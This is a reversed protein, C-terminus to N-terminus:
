YCVIIFIHSKFFLKQVPIIATIKEPTKVSVRKLLIGLTSVDEEIAQSYSITIPSVNRDQKTMEVKISNIAKFFNYRRCRVFHKLNPM